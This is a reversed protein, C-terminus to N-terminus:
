DLDWGALMRRLIGCGVGEVASELEQRDVRSAVRREDAAVGRGFGGPGRKSPTTQVGSLASRGTDAYGVLSLTELNGVVDRVETGSLSQLLNERTCLMTYAECLQRMTPAAGTDGRRTPTACIGKKVKKSPTTAPTPFDGTSTSSTSSARTKNRQELAVLSCLIAKQQLNLTKLRSATGNNFVASTVKIIHALTARPADEATLHALPSHAPKTPTRPHKTPSESPHSLPSSLNTNEALPMRAPSGQSQGQEKELKERTEGDVIDVARQTIDLAKRIDGTQAAVKKSILQIAAPVILPTFNAGANTGPPLLSRSRWTLVSAIEPAVYPLFPLLRPKLSRAKLRPLFRDTLDLANAIGILILRSPQQLALSFLTYLTQLDLSLLQDIEDLVALMVHNAQKNTVASTLTDKAAESFVDDSIHLESLLHTYADGQRKVSMCNLYAYRVDDPAEFGECVESVLASKGTGPPGSVYLAGGQKNEIRSSIFNQLEAREKERGILPGPNAGRAFVKRAENYISKGATARGSPTRPTRPTFPVGSVAVRHRPTAVKSLADRHRPTSPTPAQVKQKEPVDQTCVNAKAVKFHSNIKTPSLVIRRGLEGHRAPVSHISSRQPTDLQM